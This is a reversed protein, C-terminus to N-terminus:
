GLLSTLTQLKKASIKNGEKADELKKIISSKQTSQLDSKARSLTKQAELIEKINSDQLEECIAKYLNTSCAHLKNDERMLSTCCDLLCMVVYLEIRVFTEQAKPTQRLVRQIQVQAAQLTRVANQLANTSRIPTTQANVIHSTPIKLNQLKYLKDMKQNIMSLQIDSIGFGELEEISAEIISLLKQTSTQLKSLALSQCYQICLVLSKYIDISNLEPRINNLVNKVIAAIRGNVIESQVLIDLELSARTIERKYDVFEDKPDLEFIDEQNSTDQTKLNFTTLIDELHDRNKTSGLLTQRITADPILLAERIPECDGIIDLVQEKTDIPSNSESVLKEIVFEFSKILNYAKLLSNQNSGNYVLLAGPCERDIFSKLELISMNSLAIQSLSLNAFASSLNKFFENQFASSIPKRARNVLTNEPSVESLSQPDFGDDPYPVNIGASDNAVVHPNQNHTEWLDTVDRSVSVRSPASPLQVDVDEAGSYSPFLGRNKNFM